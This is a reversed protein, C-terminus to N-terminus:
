LGVDRHDFRRLLLAIVEVAVAAEVDELERRMSGGGLGIFVPVSVRPLVRTAIGRGAAAPGAAHMRRRWPACGARQGIRGSAILGGAPNGQVVPLGGWPQADGDGAPGPQQDPQLTFSALLLRPMDREGAHTGERHRCQSARYRLGESLWPHDHRTRQQETRQDRDRVHTGRPYVATRRRLERQEHGVQDADGGDCLRHQRCAHRDRHRCQKGRAGAQMGERVFHEARVFQAVSQDEGGGRQDHEREYGRHWKVPQTPQVQALDPADHHQQEGNLRCAMDRQAHETWPVAQRHGPEGRAEDGAGAGDCGVSQPRPLRRLLQVGAGSTCQQRAQGREDLEADQDDREM